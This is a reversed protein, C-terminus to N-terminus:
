TRREGSLYRDLSLPAKRSEILNQASPKEGPDCNGNAADNLWAMSARVALMMSPLTAVFGTVDVIPESPLTDSAVATMTASLGSRISTVRLSLEGAGPLM